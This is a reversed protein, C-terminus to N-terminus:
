DIDIIFVQLQSQEVEGLGSTLRLDYTIYDLRNLVYRVWKLDSFPAVTALGTLLLGILVITIHKGFYDRM